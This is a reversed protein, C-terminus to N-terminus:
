KDNLTNVYIKSFFNSNKCSFLSFIKTLILYFILSINSKQFKTKLIYKMLDGKYIHYFLFFIQIIYTFCILM